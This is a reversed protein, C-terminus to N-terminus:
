AHGRRQVTFFYAQDFTRWFDGGQPTQYPDLLDFASFMEPPGGRKLKWRSSRGAHAPLDMQDHLAQCVDRITYIKGDEGKVGSVCLLVNADQGRLEPPRLLIEIKYKKHKAM